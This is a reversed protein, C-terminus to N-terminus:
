DYGVKVGLKLSTRSKLTRPERGLLVQNNRKEETVATKTKGKAKEIEQWTKLGKTIYRIRYYGINGKFQNTLM